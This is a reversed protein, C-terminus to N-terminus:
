ENKNEKFDKCKEYHERENMSVGNDKRNHKKCRYWCCDGAGAVDALDYYKCKYCNKKGIKKLETYIVRIISYIITAGIILILFVIGILDGLTIFIKM